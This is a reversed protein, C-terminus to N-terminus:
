GENLSASYVVPGRSKWSSLQVVLDRWAEKFGRRLGVVASEKAIMEKRTNVYICIYTYIYIYPHTPALAQATKHIHICIHMNEYM